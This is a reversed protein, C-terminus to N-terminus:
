GKKAPVMPRCSFVGVDLDKDVVGLIDEIKVLFYKKFSGDEWRERPEVDITFAHQLFSRFIVRQGSELGMAKSKKTKGVDIITGVGERVKEIGTEETPLYIGFSTKEKRPELLISAWGGRVRLDKPHFYM